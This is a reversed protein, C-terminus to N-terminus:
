LKRMHPQFLTAVIISRSFYRAQLLKQQALTETAFLSLDRSVTGIYISPYIAVFISIYVQPIDGQTFTNRGKQLLFGQVAIQTANQPKKAVVTATNIDNHQVTKTLMDFDYLLLM